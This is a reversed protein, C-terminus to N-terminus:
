QHLYVYVGLHLYVHFNWVGLNLYQKLFAKLSRTWYPQPLINPVAMKVKQGKALQSSCFVDAKIAWNHLNCSPSKHTVKYRDSRRHCFSVMYKDWCGKSTCSSTSGRSTFLKILAGSMPWHAWKLTLNDNELGSTSICPPSKNTIKQWLFSFDGSFIPIETVM